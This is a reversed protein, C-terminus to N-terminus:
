TSASRALGAADHAEFPGSTVYTHRADGMIWNHFATVRTYIGYFNPQACGLGGTIIGAQLWGSADDWVMLPGGSDGYCADKGGERFGACLMNDTIVGPVGFYADYIAACSENSVIPVTTERLTDAYAPGLLPADAPDYQAGWGVIAAAIHPRALAAQAPALPAILGVTDSLVAAKALRILAVDFDIHYATEVYNPHRVIQSVAMREGEDSSLTRRGVAVDLSDIPAISGDPETVCHGVTLVWTPAILTGGCFQALFGDAISARMLAAQWPWAGPDAEGGGVITPGRPSQPQHPAAASQVVDPIPLVAMQVRQSSGGPLDGVNVTVVGDTVVGGRLLTTAAPLDTTVVVAPATGSSSNTVIFTYSIPEGPRVTAPGRMSVDLIVDPAELALEVADVGFGPAAVAHQVTNTLVAPAALDADVVTQYTIAFEPMQWDFCIMLGDQLVANNYAYQVGRTGDANEVGITAPVVPGNVGQYAYVIEYFGPADNVFRDMLIEFTYREGTSGAPAPEVGDYEVLMLSGAGAITVGRNEVEDYVVELDRWLAAALNNPAAPDPISTNFGPDANGFSAFHAFGDDTFYLGAPYDVGFFSAPDLGGYFDDFRYSFGSGGITPDAFIGFDALNVYGGFGTDCLPDTLSTSMVYQRAKSVDVEWTLVNGNVATPPVSASNVVYSMGAPITDTLIYRVQAGPAAPEAQIGITYSVVDGPRLPGTTDSSLTVDNELRRLEISMSGLVAGAAADSLELVGYKVDGDAFESINWGIQVAFPVGAAVSAPGRATLLTTDAADILLTSLTFSDIPADSSAWNQVLIWYVGPTLTGDLQSFDCVEEATSSTSSCLQEDLAPRGDGNADLGVYLDLDPATSNTTQVLLRKATDGVTILTTYVGGATLDYPNDNTPDPGLEVETLQPDSAYIQVALQDVAVTSLNEISYVGQNRRTEIQAASPLQGLTARVAVPFHAPAVDSIAATFDIEGFAWTDLAQVVDATFTLTQSAGPALTFVAPQITLTLSPASSAAVRWDVPQPWSSQIVRTWSCRSVCDSDTLSAVNLTSPDGGNFPDAARYDAGNVDLVFGARGARTMDVRGAGMDFPTAPGDGAASRANHASNATTMLASQIQAPSWDPHLATMLAGVGAIHPSSMSTGQILQFLEGQAGHPGVFGNVETVSEPSAGALIHIGPATIDPKLVNILQNSNANINPGRSSFAVVTDTPVRPDPATIRQGQTFSIRVQGPNAAVYSKLALGAEYLVRVSPIAYLYSNLDYAEASNYVIMAGAGGASVHDAKAWTAIDGSECLVVDAAQFAGPAFPTNCRGDTEFNVTPIGAADVLNFNAIGQTSTAGYLGTPPAGPGSVTIDSLYLRNFYSAGVSMVWPANAPSGITSVGPGANGVSTAVFVGAERAALYALADADVWPDTAFDSGVSYNIVDVGDRVAQEIAASLDSTVGGFPGLGKYAAVHARPAMGSITGFNLGYITAAVNENGAATSATHTGHGDDDRGSYFLGDYIGGSAAVYGDLFYQVGILKNNCTYPQSGDAPPSCSGAWRAPPAALSGDDAFSPHEPWIGTDIVGVIVGEGKAGPLGATTSGDWIGPVGLFAPSDNTQAYRWQDRQISQVEPLDLLKAAEVPTLQIALGNLVTDYEHLVRIPRGLAAAARSRFTSRGNALHARYATVAGSRMDLRRTQAAVPSTPALNAVGGRYTAVPADALLVIYVAQQGAADADATATEYQVTRARPPAAHQNPAGLKGGTSGRLAAACLM